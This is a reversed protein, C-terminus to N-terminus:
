LNESTTGISAPLGEGCAGAIKATSSHSCTPQYARQVRLARLSTGGHFQSDHRRRLWESFNEIGLLLAVTWEFLHSEYRRHASSKERWFFDLELQIAGSEHLDFGARNRSIKM